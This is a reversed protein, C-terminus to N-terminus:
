PWLEVNTLIITLSPSFNAFRAVTAFGCSVAPIKGADGVDAALVAGLLAESHLALHRGTAFQGAAFAPRHDLWGLFVVVQARERALASGAILLEKGVGLGSPDVDDDGPM